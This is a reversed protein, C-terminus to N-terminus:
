RAVREERRALHQRLLREARVGAGHGQAEHPQLVRGGARQQLPARIQERRLEALRGALHRLLDDLDGPRQKHTLPGTPLDRRMSLILRILWTATATSLM